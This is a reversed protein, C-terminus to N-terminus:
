EAGAEGNQKSLWQNVIEYSLFMLASNPVVRAVHTGMGAYLGAKGEERAIVGLSSWMGNYKFVGSRAQERMRTRAVEHPYTLVTAVCKSCAAGLLYNLKPLNNTPKLNKKARAANNMDVMKKKVKEYLVFQICGEACGWYSATIGRYFGGIGENKYITKVADAYGAYVKQGASADTLLQMRTKVMWIPNTITNSTIGASAGAIMANLTGAGIRPTLFRKSTEYAWFYTSRAPIIGVLTPPLGRWFGSVGDKAMIEKAVAFPSGASSQLSGQSVTSSQLQTKIVELPSTICSSVTGAIGGSLLNYLQTNRKQVPPPTNPGASVASLLSSLLSASCLLTVLSLRM